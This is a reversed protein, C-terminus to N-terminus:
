EAALEREVLQRAAGGLDIQEEDPIKRANRAVDETVDRALGEALNFAIDRVSRKYQGTLIDRVVTKSNRDAEGAERYIRGAEGLIM